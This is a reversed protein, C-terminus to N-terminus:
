GVPNGRKPEHEVAGGAGGDDVVEKEDRKKRDDKFGIMEIPCDHVTGIQLVTSCEECKFHKSM